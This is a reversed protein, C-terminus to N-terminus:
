NRLRAMAYADVYVGNRFAYNKFTGEIGFDYKQYLHMAAVNDTYVSLELRKISLWNEALAIAAQMLQSGIGRNHYDDHVFIGLSGAHVRRNQYTMLTILGVVKQTESVVAVLRHIGQPPNELKRKIEDRSQYPMQMTESQCKPALFIEAVDEWDAMEFARITIGGFPIASAIAVNTM